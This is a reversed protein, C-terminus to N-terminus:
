REQAKQQRAAQPARWVRDVDKACTAKRDDQNCSDELAPPPEDSEGPRCGGANKEGVAM